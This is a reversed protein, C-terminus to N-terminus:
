EGKTSALYCTAFVVGAFALMGVNGGALQWGMANAMSLTAAGGLILTTLSNHHVLLSAVCAAAGFGANVYAAPTGSAVGVLGAAAAILIWGGHFVYALSVGHSYSLDVNWLFTLVYLTIATVIVATPGFAGAGSAAVEATM